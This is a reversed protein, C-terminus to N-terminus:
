GTGVASGASGVLTNWCSPRGPDGHRVLYPWPHKNQLTWTGKRRKGALLGLADDLRPRPSAVGTTWGRLVDFYWYCPFSFRTFTAFDVEGYPTVPVPSTCAPVGAGIGPAALRPIM